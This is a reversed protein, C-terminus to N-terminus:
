ETGGNPNTYSKRFDQAKVDFPIMFVRGAWDPASVQVRCFTKGDQDVVVDCVTKYETM